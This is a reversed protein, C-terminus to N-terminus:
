QPMDAELRSLLADVDSRVAALADVRDAKIQLVSLDHRELRIRDKGCAKLPSKPSVPREPYM